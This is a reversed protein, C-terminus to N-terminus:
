NIRLEEEFYYTSDGVMWNLKAVWFGGSKTVYVIQRLSDDTAIPVKFDMKADAPKYFYIEGTIKKGIFDKPFDFTIKKGERGIRMSDKLESTRKEKDIQKQFVLDQEYYNKTVLDFNENSFYIINGVIFLVILILSVVVWLGWNGIIKM